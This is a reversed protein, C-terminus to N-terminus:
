TRAEKGWAGDEGGGVGGAGVGPADPHGELGELAVGLVKETDELRVLGRVGREVAVEGDEGTQRCRYTGTSVLVLTRSRGLYIPIWM